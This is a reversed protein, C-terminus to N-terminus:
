GIADRGIGLSDGNADRGAGLSDGNPDRGASPSVGMAGRGVGLLEGSADRGTGPSVGTRGGVGAAAVVGPGSTRTMVESDLGSWSCTRAPLSTVTPLASSLSMMM